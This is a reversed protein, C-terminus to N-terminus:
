DPLKFAFITAGRRNGVLEPFFEGLRAGATSGWGSPTAVYQKGNVSYSIPGGRHGSGTQFTWLTEGTRANLASFNGEPDGFFLLNGATSVLAALLPHKTDRRWVRRGTLPEYADLHSTVKGSPPPVLKMTGGLWPKGPIMEQKRATFEGCWEIGINYLLGTTPSFSAQNWSRSGFFNPCILTAEDIRPERRGQPVGRRDLGTTWTVMDAYKFGNIFEGNTRDLVYVFGNKSPHILLKRPRGNVPLDVLIQEYVADYDWVDHPVPQFHWVIEGTAAKLAVISATYLNDGKRHEGYFDSSANSTGWYILDLEPDYSGTMWPAGGGYMWSDGEWTENGKEGPGPIVNFWWRQKGTKGDYASIHGRHANDGGRSGVVVLDNVVLPAARIFCGFKERDEVNTRWVEKGTNADLAVMFNDDTGLYVHGHGLGVGRNTEVPPPAKSSGKSAASQEYKYHWLERGTAADVAWVHQDAGTVYMVGDAVVPTSQLGTDVVGLQFAWATQLSRVNKVNIQDLGSYRLSRYTGGYVLWNQPENDANRLRDNTVERAARGTVAGVMVVVLAGLLIRGRFTKSSTM